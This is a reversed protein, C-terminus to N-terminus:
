LFIIGTFIPSGLRLPRVAIVGPYNAKLELESNATVRKMALGKEVWTADPLQRENKCDLCEGDQFIFLNNRSRKCTVCNTFAPEFRNM